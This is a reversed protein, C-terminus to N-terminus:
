AAVCKHLNVYLHRSCGNLRVHHLKVGNVWVRSSIQVFFDEWPVPLSLVFSWDPFLHLTKPHLPENTRETDHFLVHVHPSTSSNLEGSDTNAACATM